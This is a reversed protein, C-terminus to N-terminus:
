LHLRQRLIRARLVNETHHSNTFPALLPSSRVASQFSSLRGPFTPYKLQMLKLM